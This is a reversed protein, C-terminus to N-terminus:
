HLFVRKGTFIMGIGAKQCAEIVDKDRISGGPQIISSVGYEAAIEVNDVFPLYADSALSSGRVKDGARSIAIRLAEVRSTQGAGIGVTKKDKVLVMANSRCHAVVRWAFLLDEMQVNDVNGTVVKLEDPNSNQLTQVLVSNYISRIRIKSQGKEYTVIRLNKKKSIIELADSSFSPAMVVEVFLDKMNEACKSEFERNVCIVSGYASERDANIANLLAEHMNSSSAVGCPSNHKVVVATPENFDDCTELASSADLYNNYSMEKGHEINWKGTGQLPYIYGEQDPNEGYRLRKGNNLALVFNDSEIKYKESLGRAIMSDYTATLGFAKVALRRRLDESISGYKAMDGEILPYDDPEVVVAVRSNNKAAGRILSVGGIDINEIMSNLNGQLLHKEFPYLNCIVMHFVPYGMKKVEINDMDNDRSLIGSFIAPHLTKVRGELLNEFGTLDSTNVSQIGNESLFKFTGGSAYINHDNWHINKLFEVLGKKDYVSVLINM